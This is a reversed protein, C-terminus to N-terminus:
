HNVWLVTSEKFVANWIIYKKFTRTLKGINRRFYSKQPFFFSVIIPKEVMFGNQKNAKTKLTIQLRLGEYHNIDLWQLSNNELLLDM